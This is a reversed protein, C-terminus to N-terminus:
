KGKGKKPESITLTPAAESITLMSEIIGLADAAFKSGKDKEELLASYETKLFNPKWSVLRDAIASGQNGLNSLKELTAEVVDNDALSYNYKVTAKLVYGNGLERNNVGETKAPFARGVIYKRLDMEESKATEIADKKKQWLMLLDDESMADHPNLSPASTAQDVSNDAVPWGQAAFTNPWNM